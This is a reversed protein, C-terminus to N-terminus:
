KSAAGSKPQPTLSIELLKLTMWIKSRYSTFPSQKLGRLASGLALRWNGNRAGAVALRLYWGSIADRIIKRYEFNFHADVSQLVKIAQPIREIESLVSWIGTDHTRYAGMEENIYGILGHRANLMHLPWDGLTSEFYWAPLEQILGRRFMVSCTYIPNGRLLDELAVTEKGLNVVPHEELLRDQDDVYRVPHFCGAYGPHGDLFCAQQQLKVPSTWYDDGELMAIYQGRCNRLTVALNKKGGLGLNQDHLLLRIKEPHRKRYELLIERTADTSCDEGIVIEYDFHTEQMLASEVAKAIFREHNYTIMLVSVKPSSDHEM